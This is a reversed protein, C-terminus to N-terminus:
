FSLPLPHRRTGDSHLLKALPTLLTTGNIRGANLRGKANQLKRELDAIEDEIAQSESSDVKNNMPSAYGINCMFTVCTTPSADPYL